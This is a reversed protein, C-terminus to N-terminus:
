KAFIFDWGVKNTLFFIGASFFLYKLFIKRGLDNEKIREGVHFQELFDVVLKVRRRLWLIARANKILFIPQSALNLISHETVRFCFYV